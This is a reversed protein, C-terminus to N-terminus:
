STLAMSLTLPYQQRRLVISGKTIKFNPLLARSVQEDTSATRMLLAGVAPQLLQALAFAAASATESRREGDLHFYLHVLREATERDGSAEGSPGRGGQNQRSHSDGATQATAAASGLASAAASSSASTGTSGAAGARSAVCSALWPLVRAAISVLESKLAEWHLAPQMRSGQQLLSRQQPQPVDAASRQQNGQQCLVCAADLAWCAVM